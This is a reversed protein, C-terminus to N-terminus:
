ITSVAVRPSLFPPIGAVSTAVQGMLPAAAAVVQAFAAAAGIGSPDPVTGASAAATLQTLFTLLSIMFTRGLIVNETAGMGGLKIGGVPLPVLPADLIIGNAATLTTNQLLDGVTLSNLGLQANLLTAGSKLKVSGGATLNIDGLFTSMDISPTVYPISPIPPAGLPTGGALVSLTGGVNLSASGVAGAGVDGGSNVTANNAVKAVRNGLINETLDSQTTVNKSRGVAETLNGFPQLVISGDTAKLGVQSGRSDQVLAAYEENSALRIKNGNKDEIQTFEAGKKNSLEITQASSGTRNKNRILIRENGSRGDLLVEQGAVDVLRVYGRADVLDDQDKQTDESADSVGRQAAVTSNVEVTVPCSMELVQGARDLIKLFESGDKEEVLITHGKFSKRWTKRHPHLEDAAEDQFIDKPTELENSPTAWKPVAGDTDFKTQMYQSASPKGRVCGVVIPQDEDGMKFAVHVKTGVPPPDFEGWDYGGGWYNVDAWPLTGDPSEADNGHILYVRVRVRGMRSPDKVEVVEGDWIGNRNKSQQLSLIREVTENLSQTM